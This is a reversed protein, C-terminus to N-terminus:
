QGTETLFLDIRYPLLNFECFKATPGSDPARKQQSTHAKVATDLVEDPLRAKQRDETFLDLARQAADNLSELQLYDVESMRQNLGFRAAEKDFAAGLVLHCSLAADMGDPLPTDALVPFGGEGPWALVAPSTTSQGGAPASKAILHTLGAQEVADPDLAELFHLANPGGLSHAHGLWQAALVENVPGYKGWRYIVGLDTASKGDTQAHAALMDHAEKRSVPCVDDYLCRHAITQIAVPHGNRALKVMTEAQSGDQLFDVLADDFQDGTVGSKILARGDESLQANAMGALTVLGLCLVICRALQFSM